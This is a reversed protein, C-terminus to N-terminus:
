ISYDFNIERLVYEYETMYEYQITATYQYPYEIDSYDTMYNDTTDM